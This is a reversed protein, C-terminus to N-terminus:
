ARRKRGKKGFGLKRAGVEVGRFVGPAVGADALVKAGRSVIRTKKAFDYARKAANAISNLLGTGVLVKGKRNSRKAM